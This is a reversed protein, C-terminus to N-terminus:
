CNIIKYFSIVKYSAIVKYPILVKYFSVLKCSKKGGYFDVVKYSNLYSYYLM